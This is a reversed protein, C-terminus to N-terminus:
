RNMSRRASESASDRSCTSFICTSCFTIRARASSSGGGDGPRLVRLLERLAADTASRDRGAVSIWGAALLAAMAGIRRYM